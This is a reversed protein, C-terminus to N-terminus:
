IDSRWAHIEALLPDTSPLLARAADWDLTADQTRGARQHARGRWALAAGDKPDLEVAADLDAMAEAPSELDLALRARLVYAAGLEPDADIAWRADRWALNTRGAALHQDARALYLAAPDEITEIGRDLRERAETLRGLAAEARATLAIADPDAADHALVRATNALAKEAEGLRLHGEAAAILTEPDDPETALAATYDAVAAAIDGADWQADGRMRLAEIHGPALALLREIATMASATEGRAMHVDALTEWCEIDEPAHRLAATADTLADDMLDLALAAAGRGALLRGNNPALALGEEFAAIARTPEDADLLAYGLHEFVAPEEVGREAIADWADAAEHPRDREAEIEALRWRPAIAEDDIETAYRFEDCAAALRDLAALAEGRVHYTAAADPAEEALADLDDMAATPGLTTVFAAIDDAVAPRPPVALMAAAERALQRIRDSPAPTM